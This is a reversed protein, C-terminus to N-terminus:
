VESKAMKSKALDFVEELSYTKVGGQQSLSAHIMARAVIEAHVPRYKNIGPIYKLGRAISIALKEMPRSENRDGDLIGPQLIRIQNFSLKKIAEELKGKMRSYFIRSGSDAGASSVLVLCAVGNRAAIEAMRYQYTFDIKYQEEQSGAKKITTGLASFLVDGKVFSEWEDPDDFHIIQEELKDSKQGTTRRTFVKVKSFNDDKLLMDLLHSGVLGTAGIILATKM